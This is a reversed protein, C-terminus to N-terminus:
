RIQGGTISRKLFASVELSSTDDEPEPVKAKKKKLKKKQIEEVVVAPDDEVVMEAGTDKKSGKKM